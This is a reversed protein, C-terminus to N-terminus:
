MHNMANMDHAEHEPTNTGPVPMGKTAKSPASGTSKSPKAVPGDAKAEPMTEGRLMAETMEADKQQGVRTKEVQSRVAGSVGNKLAVESMTVGGKHHELMKRMFMEAFDAGKANHMAQDMVLMAPHYLDMTKQDPAGDQRLKELDGVEKEQKSITERAMIAVDAPLPQQLAARSMDIAGQHHAIMMRVWTDGANPGVAAMMAQSMNQEIAAFPNSADTQTNMAIAEDPSQTNTNESRGCAAAGFMLTATLTLKFISM